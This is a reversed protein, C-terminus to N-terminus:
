FKFQYSISPIVPFLTVRRFVNKYANGTYQRDRYIFFTNLRNYLNYVNIVWAKEHRKKQKSWKLGVDMRHYAPLRNGNRSNYVEIEQGAPDQYVAVPFTTAIGTGYVWDASIQFRDTVKHVVAMKLDHRRDYKYPYIEGGNLNAFQRNTWSLTYGILGTTRGKKKQAFLELGYSWGKGAEVREEWSGTTNVFSAGEAYEIVNHVTKYYGEASFEYDRKHNYAWGAAWQHSRQPPVTATAPVWLDTPLGLGNNTLLHIFQNMQAYSAKLSMTANLLLRAALRPQVTGFWKDQVRFRTFHLGPAVKLRSSLKWDDEVYADVEAASVFLSKVVTDENFSASAVKSQLAGPKYSHWTVSAGTRVYHNPNPLYDLDFRTSVDRIGSYYKQFFRERQGAATTVREDSFLDFAYRTYNATLNSFLRKGFEHNWRVVATANGWQIGTTYREQSNGSLSEYDERASFKDKGFYGSVYLHDKPSLYVNAKANLDYFFYGADTTGGSSARIIPRMFIDAYTRRGSVMFSSKGKKLPGELTVRSAILGIGGEGHFAQNNGEKMRIDIVSSLRGGYRAPFGGKIVDVSNVADANFVSFFGFLHSANYVPVGDLLILNQDPGGGRVYVGNSGETGAQIGPLLQIAKLVDAEGLFAPLAKITEPSLSITSMQTRNQIDSRASSRVVVEELAKQFVLGADLKQDANGLRKVTYADYGVMTFRLEVSDTSAPLTLSYYGYNNSTTGAGSASVVVSAGILREGSAKDTVYGNISIKQGRASATLLLLLLVVFPQAHHLRMLLTKAAAPPHRFLAFPFATVSKNTFVFLGNSPLFLSFGDFCGETLPADPM